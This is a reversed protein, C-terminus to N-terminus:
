VRWEGVIQVQLRPFKHIQSSTLVDDINDRIYEDTKKTLMQDSYRNAM